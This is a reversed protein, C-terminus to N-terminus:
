PHPEPGVVVERPRAPRHGDVPVLERHGRQHFQRAVHARLERGPQLQTSAHIAGYAIGPLAAELTLQRKVIGGQGNGIRRGDTKLLGVDHQVVAVHTQRRRHDAGGVLVLRLDLGVVGHILLREIKGDGGLGHLHRRQAGLHGQRGHGPELLDSRALPAALQMVAHRGGLGAPGATELEAVSLDGHRAQGIRELDRRRARLDIARADHEVAQLRLGALHGEGPLVAVFRPGHPRVAQPQAGFLHVGGIQFRFEHGRQAAAGTQDGAGQTAGRYGDPEGLAGDIARHLNVIQQQGPAM